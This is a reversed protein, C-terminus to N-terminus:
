FYPQKGVIIDEGFPPIVTKKCLMLWPKRVIQNCDELVANVM